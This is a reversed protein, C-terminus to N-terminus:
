GVREVMLKGGYGRSRIETLVSLMQWNTELESKLAITTTGEGANHQIDIIRNGLFENELFDNADRNGLGDLWHIKYMNIQTIPLVDEVYLYGSPNLEAVLAKEIERTRTEGNMKIEAYAAWHLKSIEEVSGFGSLVEQVQSASADPPLGFIFIRGIGESDPTLPIGLSFSMVNAISVVASILLLIALASNWLNFTMKKEKANKFFYYAIGILLMAPAVFIGSLNIGLFASVAFASFAAILLGLLHGSNKDADALYNRAYYLAFFFVALIVNVSGIGGDLMTIIISIVALEFLLFDPWRMKHMRSFIHLIGSIIIVSVILAFALAFAEANPYIEFLPRGDDFRGGMDLGLSKEIYYLAIKPFHNHSLKSAEWNTYDGEAIMTAFPGFSGFQTAYLNFQVLGLSYGAVAFLIFIRLLLVDYERLKACIGSKVALFAILPMAILWSFVLIMKGLSYGGITNRIIGYLIDQFQPILIGLLLLIIFIASLRLLQRETKDM